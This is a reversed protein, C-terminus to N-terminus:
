NTEVLAVPRRLPIRQRHAPLPNLDDEDPDSLAPMDEQRQEYQRYAILCATLWPVAAAYGALVDSPYHVGLYVRSAGILAIMKLAGWTVIIRQWPSTYYQVAWSAMLGYFVMAIFSHGSPFSFTGETVLAEILTPRVRAYRYKLSGILLGGGALAVALLFTRPRSKPFLMGSVAGAVGIGTMADPRALESIFRMFRTRNPTRLKLALELGGQDFRWLGEKEKHRIDRAIHNFFTVAGATVGAGVAVPTVVFPM